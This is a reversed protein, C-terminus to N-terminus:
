MVYCMVPVLLLYLHEDNQRDTQDFPPRHNPAARVRQKQEGLDWRVAAGRDWRSSQTCWYCCCCYYRGRYSCDSVPAIASALNSGEAAVV